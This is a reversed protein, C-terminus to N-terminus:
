GAACELTPVTLGLRVMAQGGAAELMARVKAALADLAFPKGIVQMGPALQGELAGGAYGTIFLVPLGPRRERAADAVQRGNLGGRLGVDTVLVDVRVGSRLMRLAAPGDEAELVAYGLERLREAAVARVAEEDDVLLVAGTRGAGEVESQPALEGKSAAVSDHRPLCLRVTTGQGPASDLRVVGNSQRVFGYLQSLGLGTGQGM